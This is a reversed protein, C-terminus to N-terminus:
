CLEPTDRKRGSLRELEREREIQGRREREVLRDRHRDDIVKSETERRTQREQLLTILDPRTWHKHDKKM